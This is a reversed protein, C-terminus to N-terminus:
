REFAKLYYPFRVRRSALNIPAARSASWFKEQLNDEPADPLEILSALDLLCDRVQEWDDRTSPTPPRPPLEGMRPLWDVPAIGIGHLVHTTAAVVMTLHAPRSLPPQLVAPIERMVVMLAEDLAERAESGGPFELDYNKYARDLTRKEGGTLGQTVQLLLDAMLADDAMRARQALSLVQYNDWLPLWRRATDHVLWKFEGQYQAHRQEAPNLAVTYTNIRAFVELVEDDSANILQEAVFTYSLFQSKADEDLDSYRMGAFDGARKTLRLKDDAFEFITLLRQQGDVVERISSQTIADIKSRFYMKPIPYGRLLSDILYVKGPTRWVSRRQFDRNIELRKAARLELFDAVSYHHTSLRLM